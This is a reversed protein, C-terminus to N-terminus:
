SWWPNVRGAIILNVLAVFKAMRGVNVLFVKFGLKLGVEYLSAQKTTVHQKLSERVYKICKEKFIAASYYSM